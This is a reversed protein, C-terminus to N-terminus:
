PTVMNDEKWKQTFKRFETIDFEDDFLPSDQPRVFSDLSTQPDSFNAKLESNKQNTTKINSTQTFGPEKKAEFSAFRKEHTKMWDLISASM